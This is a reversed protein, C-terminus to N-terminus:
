NAVKILRAEVARVAEGNRVRVFNLEMGTGSLTRDYSQVEYGGDDRVVMVHVSLTNGAIAAWALEDGAMPETRGPPAFVGPRAGPAFSLRNTKRRVDPNTPDGGGRIVSTWEVYFGDDSPGIMVDVDRVTVNFYLSDENEAIGTGQYRGYFAEVSLNQQALAALPMFLGALLM